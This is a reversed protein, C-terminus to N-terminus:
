NLLFGRNISYKSLVGQGEKNNLQNLEVIREISSKWHAYGQDGASTQDVTDRRYVLGRTKPLYQSKNEKSEHISGVISVCKNFLLM